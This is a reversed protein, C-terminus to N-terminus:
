RENGNKLIRCKVEATGGNEDKKEEYINSFHLTIATNEELFPPKTMITARDRSIPCRQKRYVIGVLIYVYLCM